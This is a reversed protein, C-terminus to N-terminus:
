LYRHANKQVEREPQM